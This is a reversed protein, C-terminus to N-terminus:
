SNPLGSAVLAHVVSDPDTTAISVRGGVVEVSRAEPIAEIIALAEAANGPLTFRVTRDTAMAKISLATGDVVIRGRVLVLIREAIADAEDLYHTAFLITRGDAAFARMDSWFARRTEVDMGVTPEDLFLLDPDGAIAFAFRVRQAEGGSLHDVARRELGSLGARGVISANSLPNPYIGRAFEVLEGVRAAAPLGSTQLMAGVRGAAVAERPELGLTRILGASPTLLGLMLDIATSKGAGNPGLLAVTQGILVDFGVEDLALTEGYTKTVGGFRVAAPPVEADLITM